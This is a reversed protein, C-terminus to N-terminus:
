AAQRSPNATQRADTKSQEPVLRAPTEILRGRMVTIYGLAAMGWYLERVENWGQHWYDGLVSKPMDWLVSCLQAIGAVLILEGRPLLYNTWHGPRYAGRRLMAVVPVIVFGVLTAYNAFNKLMHSPRNGFLNHLNTQGHHNNQEFWDPSRWGILQQGYSIEELAVFGCGIAFLMFLLRYANHIRGRTRLALSIAGGGALAFLFATGLEIPGNERYLFKQEAEPLLGRALLYGALCLTPAVVLAALLRRSM